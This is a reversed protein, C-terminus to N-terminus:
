FIRGNPHDALRQQDGLCCNRERPVGEQPFQPRRLVFRSGALLATLASLAIAGPEPITSPSFTINDLVTPASFRLEGTQGEFATIDAAFISYTPTTALTVLGLQQGAFSVAPNGLAYFQLSHATAPITGVQGIAPFITAIPNNAQLAVSYSGQLVRVFPSNADHISIAAANITVDNYLIDPYAPGAIYATWGPLAAPVAVANPYFPSTPDPIILASEFDLNQFTGQCRACPTAACVLFLLLEIQLSDLKM